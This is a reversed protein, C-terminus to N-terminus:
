GGTRERLANLTPLAQLDVDRGTAQKSRIVDDLSAVKLTLGFVEYNEANKALALVRARDV